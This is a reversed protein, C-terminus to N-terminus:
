FWHKKAFLVSVAVMVGLCLACIGWFALRLHAGPLATNMGYFGAVIMPITLVITVGALFKMIKNLKNSIIAGFADSLSSLVQSFIDAMFIAQQNETMADDLLEHEEDTMTLSFPPDPRTFKEMLAHNSKLATTIHILSKELALIALIEEDRPSKRLRAESQDAEEEMAELSEIFGTGAVHFFAFILRKRSWNRERNLLHKLHSFVLDPHACVSIVIDPTLILGVPVTNFIQGDPGKSKIALRIVLLIKDDDQDLRPRERPDLSDSLFWPPLQYREQLLQLEADGPEALDLWDPSDSPLGPKILRDSFKYASLM